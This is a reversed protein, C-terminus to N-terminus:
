KKSTDAEATQKMSIVGGIDDYFRELQRQEEDYKASGFQALAENSGQRFDTFLGRKAQNLEAEISGSHALDAQSRTDAAQSRIKGMQQLAQSGIAALKSDRGERAINFPEQSMPTIYQLYNDGLDFEDKMYRGLGGSIYKSWLEDYGLGGSIGESGNAM